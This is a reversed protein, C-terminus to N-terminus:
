VSPAMRHVNSTCWVDFHASYRSDRQSGHALMFDGLRRWAADRNDFVRAMLLDIENRGQTAPTEGM